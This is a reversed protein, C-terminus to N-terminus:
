PAHFSYENIDLKGVPKILEGEHVFIGATHLENFTCPPERLFSWRTELLKWFADTTTTGFLNVTQGVVQVHFCGAELCIHWVESILQSQYVLRRFLIVRANDPDTQFMRSIDPLGSFLDDRLRGLVDKISLKAPQDIPPLRTPTNSLFAVLTNISTLLNHNKVFESCISLIRAINRRKSAAVYSRDMDRICEELYHKSIKSELQVVQNYHDDIDVGMSQTGGNMSTNVGAKSDHTSMM